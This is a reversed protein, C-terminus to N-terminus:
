LHHVQPLTSSTFLASRRSWPWPRPPWRASRCSPRQSTQWVSSTTTVRRCSSLSALRDIRHRPRSVNCFHTTGFCFFVAVSCCYRCKYELYDTGHKPCMQAQFSLPTLHAPGQERVQSVDSCGGCVLEEPNFADGAGADLDCRAEGGFYAKGCKFCVYYAYREM